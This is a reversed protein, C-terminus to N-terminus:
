ATPTKTIGVIGGGKKSTGNLWEQSQDPDVQKFAKQTRKVVFNGKSFEEQIEPPLQHMETLYVTGWRAYNTHDYRMFFPLMSKFAHLHLEWDGVRQARTFHLLTQVMEM